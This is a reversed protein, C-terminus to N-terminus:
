KKDAKLFEEAKDVERKNGIFLPIRQHIDTPVVDLVDM